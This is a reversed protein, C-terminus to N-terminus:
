AQHWYRRPDTTPERAVWHSGTRPLRRVMADRGIIKFVLAMPTILLYFFAALIVHSVVWGIPMALAMAARFLLEVRRPQVLGRLGLLLAVAGVVAGLVVRGSGVWQFVALGGIVALWLGSFQRLLRDNIEPGTEPIGPDIM